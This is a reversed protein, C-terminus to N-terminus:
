CTHLNLISSDYVCDLNRPDKVGTIGAGAYSEHLPLIHCSMLRTAMYPTRRGPLHHAFEDRPTCLRPDETPVCTLTCYAKNANSGIERLDGIMIPSRTRYGFFVYQPTM